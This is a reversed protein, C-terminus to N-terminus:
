SLPVVTGSIASAQESCLFTVISAVQEREVFRADSGMAHVNSTTRIAAPAVANARVGNSREEAAIARMLAVVGSKAAAYASMEAIHGGPLAAPSAFFVIAGRAARVFPLFARATLYATTLNIAFQRNWVDLSSDGVPGSMGFGGAMHVLAELQEGHNARVSEALAAVQQPNTLDCSYGRAEHKAAVLRAAREAVHEPTRDVLVLPKGLRAFADAVAEGVQGPAGVGTLLVTV